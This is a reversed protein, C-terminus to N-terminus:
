FNIGFRIVYPEAYPSRTSHNLDYLVMFNVSTRGGLPLNLGGGAFVGHYWYREAELGFPHFIRSEINLPEYEVQAFLGGNFGLPIFKNFDKILDFRSFVRGGYISTEFDTIFTKEKHYIYTIGIGSSLRPTIRYGVLPSIEVRTISGFQLGFNGGFYFRERLTLPESDRQATVVGTVTLLILFIFGNMFLRQVSILSRM